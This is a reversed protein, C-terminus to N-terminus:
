SKTNMFAKERQFYPFALFVYSKKLSLHREFYLLTKAENM